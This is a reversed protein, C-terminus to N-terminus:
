GDLRNGRSCGKAVFLAFSLVCFPTPAAAFVSGIEKARHRCENQGTQRCRARDRLPPEAVVIVLVNKQPERGGAAFSSM